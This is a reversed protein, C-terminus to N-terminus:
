VVVVEGEFVFVAGAMLGSFVAYIGSQYANLSWKFQSPRTEFSCQWLIKLSQISIKLLCIM